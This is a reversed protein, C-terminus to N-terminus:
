TTLTVYSWTLLRIRACTRILLEHSKDGTRPRARADYSRAATSRNRGGGMQSVQAGPEGHDGCVLVASVRCFTGFMNLGTREVGASSFPALPASAKMAQRLGRRFARILQCYSRVPTRSRRRSGGPGRKLQAGHPARLTQCIREVIDGHVRAVTTSNPAIARQGALRSRHTFRAISVEADLCEWPTM